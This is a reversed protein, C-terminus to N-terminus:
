TSKIRHILEIVTDTEAEIGGYRSSNRFHRAHGRLFQAILRGSLKRGNYALIQALATIVKERGGCLTYYALQAVEFERAPPGSIEIDFDIHTINFDPSVLINRSWRDGYIIGLNHAKWIDEFLQYTVFVAQDRTASPLFEDLTKARHFYPLYSVEGETATPPLVKLGKLAASRVFFVQEEPTRRRFRGGNDTFGINHYEHEISRLIHPNEKPIRKLLSRGSADKVLLNTNLEGTLPRDRTELFNM